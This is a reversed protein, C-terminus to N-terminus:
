EKLIETGIHPDEAFTQGLDLCMHTWESLTALQFQFSVKTVPCFVVLERSPNQSHSEGEDTTDMQASGAAEKEKM